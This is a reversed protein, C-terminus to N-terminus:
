QLNAFGWTSNRIGHTGPTAETPHSTPTGNRVLIGAFIVFLVLITLNRSQPLDLIQFVGVGLVNAITESGAFLIGIIQLCM